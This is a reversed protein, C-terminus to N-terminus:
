HARLTVAVRTVHTAGAQDHAVITAYARLMGTHALLARARSTLRLVVTKARGGSIAFRGLALTILSVHRGKEKTKARAGLAVTARVTVTGTCSSEGAPCSLGLAVTGLPGARLKTGKLIV